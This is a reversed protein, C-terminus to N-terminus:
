RPDKTVTINAPLNVKSVDVAGGRWVHLELTYRPRVPVGDPARFHQNIVELKWDCPVFKKNEMDGFLGKGEHIHLNLPAFKDLAACTELFARFAATDGKYAFYDDANVFFGACRAPLNALDVLKQPWEDPRSVPQGAAYEMGLGFSSSPFALVLCAVGALLLRLANM